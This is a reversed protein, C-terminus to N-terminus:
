PVLKFFLLSQRSGNSQVAKPYSSILKLHPESGPLHFRHSNVVWYVDNDATANILDQPISAHEVGTGIVTINRASNLYAQLGNFPTGFFGESGVVIPTSPDLSLLQDAIEKIGQGATWEELYGSREIRPLGANEPLFILQFNTYSLQVLVLAVIIQGLRHRTLWHMGIAALIVLYPTTFLIYRATFAKAIASQAVIPVIAWAALIIKEKPYNKIILGFTIFLLVLPTCYFFLFDWSDKLHPLLPNFPHGLVESLPFVYDQNRLAIQHFEPGLRLINYMSFAILLSVLFLGSALAVERPKKPTLLIFLPSLGLGFMAPSKTLWAFGFGFGALLATDLRLKTFTLYTFLFGVALFLCLQADALAMRSFFISFPLLAYLLASLTAISTSKTMLRATLGVVIVTILGCIASLTRGALLPDSILKLFPITLWMFLPQKGDTLPLFRLNSEAQMVQSWRIYISEDAFIPLNTLAIFRTAAGLFLVMLIALVTSKRM